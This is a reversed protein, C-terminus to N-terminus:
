KKNSLAKVGILTQHEIFEISAGGGTSLHDFHAQLGSQNIAAVSDGGGIIKLCSLKAIIQAMKFTGQGFPAIEFVGFPGNWFITKVDQLHKEFEIITKDGIDVAFGQYSEGKNLSILKSKAAAKIESTFVLDIPLVVEVNQSKCLRMLDLAEKFYDEEVKSQGVDYGLAKLFTHAMAGGILLKDVKSVLCKLLGMKSSVKSGGILAAFPKKPNSLKDGLYQLEKQILFGMAAANPFCKALAVISADDRHSCGFADNVYVDAHEALKQAYTLAKDKLQEEKHFRVNELVLVEKPKLNKKLENVEQGICDNAMIVSQNLFHALRDACVKLSFKPDKEGDPRGLHSLIIVSGNQKIIYKITEIAAVIRSDDTIQGEDNLPVNFDVRLLVKKDKLNLDQIVLKKM